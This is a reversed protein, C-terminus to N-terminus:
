LAGAREADRGFTQAAGTIEGRRDVETTLPQGLM